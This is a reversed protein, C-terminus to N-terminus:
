CYLPQALPAQQGSGRTDRDTELSPPLGEDQWTNNSFTLKKMIVPFLINLATDKM